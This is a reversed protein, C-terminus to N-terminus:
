AGNTRAGWGPRQGAALRLFLLFCLATFPQLYNGRCAKTRELGSKDMSTLM